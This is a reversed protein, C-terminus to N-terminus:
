AFYARGEALNVAAAYHRFLVASGETHGMAMKAKGEHGKYYALLHSAFTHRCEDSDTLEAAARLRTWVRPWNKPTVRGQTPHDAILRRLAPLIPIKRPRNTKSVFESIEIENKSFAAWDLRMIEGKESDPRIGAYLLLAVAFTEAQSKCSAFMALRQDANLIVIKAKKRHRSREFNLASNIRTAYYDLSSLAAEPKMERVAREITARDCAGCRLELFWDPVWKPIKKMQKEYKPSWHTKGDAYCRRFRDAFTEGGHDKEAMAVAIKAAETLTMKHSALIQMARIADAATNASLASGRVGSGYESRLRAAFKEAETKIAFRKRHRKGDASLCAPINLCYGDPSSKVVMKPIRPM